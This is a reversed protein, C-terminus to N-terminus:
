WTFTDGKLCFVTLQLMNTTRALEVMGCYQETLLIWGTLESPKGLFKTPLDMKIKHVAFSPALMAPEQM